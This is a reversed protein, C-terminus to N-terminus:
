DVDFEPVGANTLLQYLDAVRRRQGRAQCFLFIARQKARSLAVFFTAVGEPNGPTHSWWSQDDMGVCLVTDYELGKSKHVTLMPIDHAGEFKDLADSWSAVGMSSAALHVRFGEMVIDLLDNRAYSTYTRQIAAPDLFEFVRNSLEAGIDAQPASTRMTERLDFLFENIEADVRHRPGEDEEDTGRLAYLASSLSSWANANRAGVGLRLAALAIEAAPDVLLDQINTRGLARSENRVSLGARAFAPQLEEEFNAPLQRVLLAYDRAHKARTAMDHAIWQALHQAEGARTTSRWIQVVQADLQPAAQSQMPPATNDLARAVFHQVRVLESSSRFNFLLDHRAAQFDIAFQEFADTRAGAWAMIRQKHDGVATVSTAGGGFTSLLFDYQAFTTDQFEDVFVFPYTARLARAIQPNARVVLEALRNLCTFTLNSAGNAGNLRNRWWELLAFGRANRPNPAAIPLRQRGVVDSEFRAGPLAVIELAWAAPARGRARELEDDIDRRSLFSINYPRTPRWHVPIANSFRDVLSKTFADFTLSVFRNALEAPCRERVRAGLNAAADTKFSIALIQQPHRCQGTELLYAARQALFETKGAGPGAVVATSGLRRLALWANPELDPIGHPRWADTAVARRSM